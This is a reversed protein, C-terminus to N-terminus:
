HKIIQFLSSYDHFLLLWDGAIIQVLGLGRANHQTLGSGVCGGLAKWTRLWRMVIGYWGSM